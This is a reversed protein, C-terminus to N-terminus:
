FFYGGKRSNKFPDVEFKKGMSDKWIKNLKKDQRVLRLISEAFHWLGHENPCGPISPRLYATVYKVVNYRISSIVPHAGDITGDYLGRRLKDMLESGIYEDSLRTEFELAIERVKKYVQFIDQGDKTFSDADDLYPFFTSCYWKGRVSNRWDPCDVCEHQLRLIVNDLNKSLSSILREIREKSAPVLGDASVVGFGTPTVVLDLAPIAHIVARLIVARVAMEELEPPLLVDGIVLSELWRVSDKVYPEIRASLSSEEDVTILTNPLVSNVLEDTLEINM